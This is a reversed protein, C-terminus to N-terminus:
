TGFSIKGVRRCTRKDRKQVKSDAAQRFDLGVLLCAAIEYSLLAKALNNLAMEGHKAMDKCGQLVMKCLHSVAECPQSFTGSPQPASGSRNGAGTLKAFDNQLTAFDDRLVAFGKRLTAFSKRL